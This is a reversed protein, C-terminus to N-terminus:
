SEFASFAIIKIMIPPLVQNKRKNIKFANLPYIKRRKKLNQNSKRLTLPQEGFILNGWMKAVEPILREIRAGLGNAQFYM